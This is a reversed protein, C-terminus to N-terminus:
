VICVDGSAASFGSRLAAGKGQNKSHNIVRVLPDSIERLIEKTGDSSADDVIIIERLDVPAHKVKSILDIITERENYCPIIVSLKM